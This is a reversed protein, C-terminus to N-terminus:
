KKGGVTDAYLKDAAKHLTIDLGSIDGLKNKLGDLADVLMVMALAEGAGGKNEKMAIAMQEYLGGKEAFAADIEAWVGRRKASQTVNSLQTLVSLKDLDLQSPMQPGTAGLPTFNLPNRFMAQPGTLGGGAMWDVAGRAAGTAGAITELAAVRLFYVDSAIDKVNMAIQQQAVLGRMEVTDAYSPPTSTLKTYADREPLALLEKALTFTVGFTNRMLMIQDTINNGAYQMIQKRIMNFMQPSMGKELEMQTELYGGKGGLVDRAARYMIADRQSSLATAGAISTDLQQYIRAGQSGRFLEGGQALFNISDAIGGPDTMGRIVGRSVAAEFAAVASQTYEGFRGAAMGTQNFGGLLGGLGAVGFRSRLNEVGIATGQDVGMGRMFSMVTDISSQKGGGRALGGGIALGAGLDFGYKASVGGVYDMNSRLGTSGKAVDGILANYEMLDPIAEEYVKALKNVGIALAAFGAVVAAVPLLAGLGEIGGLTKMLGAGSQLLGGGAGVADSGASAVGGAIQGPFGLLSQLFGAQRRGAAGGGGGGTGAAEKNLRNIKELEERYKTLTSVQNGIAQWDTAKQLKESSQALEEIARSIGPLVGSANDRVGIGISVDSM